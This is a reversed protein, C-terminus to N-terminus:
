FTVRVQAYASRPIRAPLGHEDFEIHGGNLLDYGALSLELWSRPRWAVRIDTADYGPVTALYALASVYRWSVDVDVGDLPKFSSRVKV